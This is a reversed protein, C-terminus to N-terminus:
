TTIVLTQIDDTNKNNNNNETNKLAFSIFYFLIHIKIRFCAFLDVTLTKFYNNGVFIQILPNLQCWTQDSM